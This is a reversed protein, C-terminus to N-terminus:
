MESIYSLGSRWALGDLVQTEQTFIFGPPRGTSLREGAPVADRVGNPGPNLRVSGYTITTFTRSATETEM